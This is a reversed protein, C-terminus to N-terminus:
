LKKNKCWYYQITTFIFGFFLLLITPYLADKSFFIEYFGINHEILYIIVRLMITMHLTERILYLLDKPDWWKFM